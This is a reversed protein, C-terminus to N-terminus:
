LDDDDDDHSFSRQMGGFVRPTTRQLLLFSRPIVVRLHLINPGDGSHRTVVMVILLIPQSRVSIILVM